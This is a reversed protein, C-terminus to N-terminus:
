RQLDNLAEDISSSGFDPPERSVTAETWDQATDWGDGQVAANDRPQYDPMRKLASEAMLKIRRKSIRTM